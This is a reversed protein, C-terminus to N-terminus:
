IVDQFYVRVVTKDHKTEYNWQERTTYIVERLKEKCPTGNDYSQSVMTAVIQNLLDDMSYNERNYFVFDYAFAGRVKEYNVIYKDNILLAMHTPISTNKPIYFKIDYPAKEKQVHVDVKDCKKCTDYAPAIKETKSVEKKSDAKKVEVKKDNQNDYKKKLEEPNESLRYNRYYPNMANILDFMAKDSLLGLYYNRLIDDYMM